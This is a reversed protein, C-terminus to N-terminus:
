AAAFFRPPDRLGHPERRRADRGIAVPGTPPQAVRPSRAVGRSIRSARPDRIAFAHLSNRIESKLNQTKSKTNRLIRRAHRRAASDEAHLGAVSTRRPHLIADAGMLKM